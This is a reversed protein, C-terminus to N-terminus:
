VPLLTDSEANPGLLLSSRLASIPLPNPNKPEPADLALPTSDTMAGSSQPEARTPVPGMGAGQKAKWRVGAQVVGQESCGQEPQAADRLM